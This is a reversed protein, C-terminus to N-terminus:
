FVIMVGQGEDIVTASAMALDGYQTLGKIYADFIFPSTKWVTGNKCQINGYYLCFGILITVTRVRKMSYLACVAAKFRFTKLQQRVDQGVFKYESSPVERLVLDYKESM